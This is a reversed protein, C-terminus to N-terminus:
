ANGKKAINENSIAQEERISGLKKEGQIRLQDAQMRYTEQAQKLNIENQQSLLALRQAQSSNLEDMKRTFQEQQSGLEVRFAAETTKMDSEHKTVLSNMEEDQRKKTERLKYNQEQQQRESDSLQASRQTNATEM